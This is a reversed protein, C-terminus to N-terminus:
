WKFLGLGSREPTPPTMRRGRGVTCAWAALGPFHRASHRVNVLLLMANASQCVSPLACYVRM